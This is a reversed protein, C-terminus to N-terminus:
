NNIENIQKRAALSARHIFLWASANYFTSILEWRILVWVTLLLLYILPLVSVVVVLVQCLSKHHESLLYESYYVRYNFFAFGASIIATVIVFLIGISLIRFYNRRNVWKPIVILSWVQFVIAGVTFNMFFWNIGIRWSANENEEQIASFLVIFLCYFGTFFFTPFYRKLLTTAEKDDGKPGLTQLFSNVASLSGTSIFDALNFLSSALLPFIDLLRFDRVKKNKFVEFYDYAAARIKENEEVKTTLPPRIKLVLASEIFGLLAGGGFYAGCLFEFFHSLHYLHEM